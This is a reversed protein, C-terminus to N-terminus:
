DEVLDDTLSHTLSHTVSMLLSHDSRPGIFITNTDTNTAVPSLSQIPFDAAPLVWEGRNNCYYQGCISDVTTEFRVPNFDADDSFQKFICNETEFM